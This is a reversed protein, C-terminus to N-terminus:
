TSKSDLSEFLRVVDDREAERPNCSTSFQPFVQDVMEPRLVFEVGADQYSAPLGVAAFLKRVAAVSATAADAVTMGEVNEGLAAAIRAYGASAATSNYEMVAPLFLACSLGHSTHHFAGFPEGLSHVLGLGAHTFAQGAFNAALLMREAADSDAPDSVLRPLSEGISRIAALALTDTWPSAQKSVCAEIAHTLADAGCEAAIRPPLTALLDPDLVAVQPLLADGRIAMKENQVPDTIVAVRTAESGTGATTPIAVLPAIPGPVEVGGGYEVLSAPWALRAAVAKAADLSSGGGLGVVATCGTSNALAVADEVAAVDPDVCVRDFVEHVIGGADFLDRLRGVLGAAAVGEDTVLLYKKASDLVGPLEALAGAGHLVRPCFRLHRASLQAM